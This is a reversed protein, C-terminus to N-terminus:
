VNMRNINQQHPLKTMKVIGAWASTETGSVLIELLFLSEASVEGSVACYFTLAVHFCFVVYYLFAIPITERSFCM